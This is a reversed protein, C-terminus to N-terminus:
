KHIMLSQSRFKPVFPSLLFTKVFYPLLGGANLRPDVQSRYTQHLRPLESWHTRAHLHHATHLGVNFLLINVLGEFNRAFNIPSNGDAHAHQLYNAALLWHLGFLQPLIVLLLWKRWDLLGLSLWLIGVAFYQAICYRFVSRHNMRLRNLWGIFVPILVYTAQVPHLLYGFLHNTDKGFRYTRATDRPGHRYRHHNSNHSVHFVFTPHGQLLTLWFDTLRNMRRSHWMRLHAHNHHITSIGVSLFLTMIFLPWAFGYRWQWMVLTPQLIMYLMSQWDRRNCLM